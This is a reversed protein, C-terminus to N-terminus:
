PLKRLRNAPSAQGASNMERRALEVFALRPSPSSYQSIRVSLWEAISWDPEARQYSLWDGLESPPLTAFCVQCRPPTLPQQQLRKIEYIANCKCYAFVDRM